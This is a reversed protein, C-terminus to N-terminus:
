NRQAFLQQEIESFAARMPVADKSVECETVIQDACGALFLAAFTM